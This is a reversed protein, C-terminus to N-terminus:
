ARPVMTPMVRPVVPPRWATVRITGPLDKDRPHFDFRLRYDDRRVLGSVEGAITLTEGDRGPPWREDLAAQAHWITWAMGLLFFGAIRAPQWALAPVAPILVWAAPPLHPYLPLLMAGAAFAPLLWATRNLDEDQPADISAM